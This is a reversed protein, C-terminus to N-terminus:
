LAGSPPNVDGMAIGGSPLMAWNGTTTERYILYNYDEKKIINKTSCKIDLYQGKTGPHTARPTLTPMGDLLVRYKHLFAEDFSAWNDGAATPYIDFHKDSAININYYYMFNTLQDQTSASDIASDILRLDFDFHYGYIFKMKNRSLNPFIDSIEIPNMFSASQDVYFRCTRRNGDPQTNGEFIIYCKGYGFPIKM